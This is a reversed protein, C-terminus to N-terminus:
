PRYEEGVTNKLYTARSVQKLESHCDTVGDTRQTCITVTISFEEIVLPSGDVATTFTESASKDVVMINRSTCSTILLVIAIIALTVLVFGITWPDEPALKKSM